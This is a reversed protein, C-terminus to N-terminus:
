RGLQQASLLNKHLPKEFSQDDQDRAQPQHINRVGRSL